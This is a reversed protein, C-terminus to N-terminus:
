GAPWPGFSAARAGAASAAALADDLGSGRSLAVLMTAAFADGAGLAPEPVPAATAARLAGGFVAVAGARGRTVCALRVHEGLARAADEPDQGTLRRAEDENMFLANAAPPLFELPGPSLAIWEAEAQELAAAVTEPPLYGSVLVGDGDIREPLQKPSLRANAGRDARIGGDVLLFTGTPASEDISVICSVGRDELASLLARGAFDDGVAGVLTAEAGAEAAWAAAVAASGGPFVTARADHGQGTVVVDVMLDGVAVFRSV